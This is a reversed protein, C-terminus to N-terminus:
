ASSSVVVCVRMRKFRVQYRSQTLGFFDAFVEGVFEAANFVSWGFAKASELVSTSSSSSSSSSAHQEEDPEERDSM